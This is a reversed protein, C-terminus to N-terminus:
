VNKPHRQSKLLNTEIRDAWRLRSASRLTPRLHLSAREAGLEVVPAGRHDLRELHGVLDHTKRRTRETLAAPRRGM